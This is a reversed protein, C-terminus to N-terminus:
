VTIEYKKWRGSGSERVLGLEKMRRMYNRYSRDVIELLEKEGSPLKGSHKEMIMKAATKM